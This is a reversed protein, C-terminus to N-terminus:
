SCQIAGALTTLDIGFTEAIREIAVMADGKDTNLNFGTGQGNSGRDYVYAVFGYTPPLEKFAKLLKENLERLENLSM